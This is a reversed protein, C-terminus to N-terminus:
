GRMPMVVALPYDCDKPRLTIPTPASNSSYGVRIDAIKGRMIAAADSLYAININMDASEASESVTDIECRASDGKQITLMNEAIVLEIKDAMGSKKDKDTSTKTNMAAIMSLSDSFRETNMCFSFSTKPIVRKWDPYSAAISKGLLVTSDAFTLQFDSAGITLKVQGAGLLKKALLVTKRPVIVERPTINSLAQIPEHAIVLRNGDTSVLWLGNEDIRFLAGNLFIRIDASAMSLSVDDVMSALRTADMTVTIREEKEPNMRPYDKSDLTPLKFRSRGAKIQMVNEDVKIEIPSNDPVARILDNFRRADVAVEGITKVDCPSLARALVGCDSCLFSLKGSESAKLLVMGLMPVTGKTDAAGLVLSLPSVLNAKTTTIQM